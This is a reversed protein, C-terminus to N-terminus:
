PWANNATLSPDHTKITASRKKAQPEGGFNQNKEKGKKQSKQTEHKQQM